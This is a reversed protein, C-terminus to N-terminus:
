LWCDPANPPAATHAHIVDSIRVWLGYYDGNRELSSKQSVRDAFDHLAPPIGCTHHVGDELADDVIAREDAPLDAYHVVTVGDTSTDPESTPETAVVADHPMGDVCGALATATVSM